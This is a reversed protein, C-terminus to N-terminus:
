RSEKISKAIGLDGIKVTDNNDDMLFINAPKIDRHVIHSQHLYNLGEAIQKIIGLCRKEEM